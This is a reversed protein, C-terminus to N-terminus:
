LVRSRCEARWSSLCCSKTTLPFNPHNQEHSHDMGFFTWVTDSFCFFVVQQFLSPSTKSISSSSKQVQIISTSRPGLLWSAAVMTHWGEFCGYFHYFVSLVITVGWFIGDQAHCHPYNLPHSLALLAALPTHLPVVHMQTIQRPPRNPDILITNSPEPAERAMCVRTPYKPDIPLCSLRLLFYPYSLIVCSPYSLNMLHSFTLWSFTCFPEAPSFFIADSISFMCFCVICPLSLYCTLFVKSLSLYKCRHIPFSM